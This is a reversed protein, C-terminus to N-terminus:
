AGVGLHFYQGDKVLTRDQLMDGVIKSVWTRTAGCLRALDKITILLERDSALISVASRVREVLPMQSIHSWTLIQHVTAAVSRRSRGDEEEEDFEDLLADGVAAYTYVSPLGLISEIGISADSQLVALVQEGVRLEVFGHLIFQPRVPDEPSGLITYPGRYSTRKM